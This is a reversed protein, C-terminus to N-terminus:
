KWPWKESTYWFSAQRLASDEQELADLMFQPTDYHSELCMRAKIGKLTGLLSSNGSTFSVCYVVFELPEDAQFTITQPCELVIKDVIYMMASYFHNGLGYQVSYM